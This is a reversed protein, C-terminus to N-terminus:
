SLAADTVDEKKIPVVETVTLDDGLDPSSLRVLARAADAAAAETFFTRRGIMVRWVTV